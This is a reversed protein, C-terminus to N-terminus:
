GAVDPDFVLVVNESRIFNGIIAFGAVGLGIAMHPELASPVVFEDEGIVALEVKLQLGATEFIHRSADAALRGGALALEYIGGGVRKEKGTSHEEFFSWLAVPYDMAGHSGAEQRVRVPLDM